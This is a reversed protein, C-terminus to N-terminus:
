EELIAALCHKADDAYDGPMGSVTDLYKIWDELTTTDSDTSEDVSHIYGIDSIDLVGAFFLQKIMEEGKEMPIFPLFMYEDTQYSRNFVIGEANIADEPGCIWWADVIESVLLEGTFDRYLIRM